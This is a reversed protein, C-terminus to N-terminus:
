GSIMGMILLRYVKLKGGQSFWEKGLHEDFHGRGLTEFHGLKFLFM